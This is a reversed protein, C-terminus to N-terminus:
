KGKLLLRLSEENLVGSPYLQNDKQFQQLARQTVDIFKGDLPINYGKKILLDQLRWVVAGTDGKALNRKSVEKFLQYHDANIGKQEIFKIEENSYGAKKLAQSNELLQELYKARKRMNNYAKAANSSQTNSEDPYLVDIGENYWTRRAFAGIQYCLDYYEQLLKADHYNVDIKNSVPYEYNTPPNFRRYNWFLYFAIYLNAIVLVAIIIRKM